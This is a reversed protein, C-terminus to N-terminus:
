EVGEAGATAVRRFELQRRRGADMMFFHLTSDDLTTVKVKQPSLSDATPQTELIDGDLAFRGEEFYDLTSTYTYAGGSEFLLSVDDLRVDVTDGEEILLSAQWTGLLEPTRDTECAGLPLTAVALAAAAARM